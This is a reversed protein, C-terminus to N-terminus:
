ARWTWGPVRRWDDGAGRQARQLYNTAYTVYQGGRPRQQSRYRDVYSQFLQLQAISGQQDGILGLLKHAAYHPLARHFVRLDTRVTSNVTFPEDNTSTMPAPRAVYPVQLVATQSSGIKPPEWLGILVDGGNTRTYYGSPTQVPTTSQRWGPEVRNQFPIPRQPFDDGALQTVLGNSDTFLYEVGQPALRMFDTSGVASSLLAYETVSCSLSVSRQRILCETQDCFEELADNIAEQRRTSTYLVTSVDNLERSLREKSLQGLTPM